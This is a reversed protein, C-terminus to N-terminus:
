YAGFLEAVCWIRIIAPVYAKVARGKAESFGKGERLLGDLPASTSSMVNWPPAGNPGKTSM